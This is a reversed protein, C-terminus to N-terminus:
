CSSCFFEKRMYGLNQMLTYINRAIDTEVRNKRRYSNYLREEGEILRLIDGEGFEFQERYLTQLEENSVIEDEVLRLEERLSLVQNYSLKIAQKIEKEVKKTRFDIENIQSRVRDTAAERAFGDFLTYSLELYAGATRDKGVKGGSDYTQNFEVLGNITPYFAARQKRYEHVLAQRDHENLAVSSNNEQAVELFDDIKLELIDFIEPYIARFTPLRGTLFELDTLSDIMTSQATQVENRAFTLRSNAYSLKAKSEAGAEVMLGVKNNVERLTRLFKQALEVDRQSQYYGLYSDITDQIVNEHAIDVQVASSADLEKRRKLEEQTAFGDFIFQNVVVSFDNTNNALSFQTGDSNSASAPNNYERGYSGFIDVQPYFASAAEDIGAEAQAKQANAVGIDPDDNLAFLIVTELSLAIPGDQEEAQANFGGVFSLGLLVSGLLLRRRYKTLKNKITESIFM